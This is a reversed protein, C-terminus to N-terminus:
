GLKYVFPVYVTRRGWALKSPPAPLSGVRNVSNIAARDLLSVGSSKHVRCELVKGSGDIVLALEVRGEVGARIAARPYKKSRRVRKHVSLMYDKFLADLNEQEDAGLDDVVPEVVKPAVVAVVVPESEAPM